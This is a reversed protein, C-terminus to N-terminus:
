VRNEEYQKVPLKIIFTTGSGPASQVSITGGNEEVLRKSIALGLGTGKPKTTFFPHFLKDLLEKDIGKGTDAIVIEITSSAEDYGTKVRLTGGGYMAEIANLVLNLFVQKMQMPDAMTAPIRDDFEIVAIIGPSLGGTDVSLELTSHLISNLDVPIFQPKPPRAFNLLDKLLM